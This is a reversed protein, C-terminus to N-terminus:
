NLLKNSITSLTVCQFALAQGDSTFIHARTQTTTTQCHNPFAHEHMSACAHHVHLTASTPERCRAVAQTASNVRVAKIKYTSPECLKSKIYARLRLQSWCRHEGCGRARQLRAAKSREGLHGGGRRRRRTDLRLQIIIGTFSTRNRM